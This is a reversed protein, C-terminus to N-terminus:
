TSTRPTAGKTLEVLSALEDEPSSLHGADDNVVVRAGPVHEGLWRGHGAPVLVDKSGYRVTVPVTIEALDFGWPALFALDDDVWGGVGPKFAQRMQDGLFEQIDERALLARDAEGLAFDGLPNAPDKAFREMLTAAEATLHRHLTEEGEQAWGFEKVNEPDMGAYFDLGAADAPALSVAAEVALVRHGL